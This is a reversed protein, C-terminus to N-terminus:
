MIIGHYYKPSTEVLATIGAFYATLKSSERTQKSETLIEGVIYNTKQIEQYLSFQNNKIQELNEVINSLQSIIINQRLEMEYLNYAGDPGELKDCRGSLLYENIAAIAVFNRYKPFIINEDYIKEISEKLCSLAIEHQHMIEFVKSKHVNLERLYNEFEIHYATNAKLLHEEYESLKAKYNKVEKEYNQMTQEYENASKFYYVISSILMIGGFAIFFAGLLQVLGSKSCCLLIGIFVAIVFFIIIGINTSSNSKGPNIPESPKLINPKKPEIPQQSDMLLKHKSMLQEQTFIAAELEKIRTTYKKLNIEAMFTVEM